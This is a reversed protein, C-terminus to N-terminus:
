LTLDTVECHIEMHEVSTFIAFVDYSVLFKKKLSQKNTKRAKCTVKQFILLKESNGNRPKRKRFYLFLKGKLFYLFNKQPKRKRFYLFNEQPLNKYKELKPQFTCPEM